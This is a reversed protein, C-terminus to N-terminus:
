FLCVFPKKTEPSLGHLLFSRCLSHMVPHKSSSRSLHKWQSTNKATVELVCCTLETSLTLYLHAFCQLWLVNWENKKRQITKIAQSSSGICDNSCAISHNVDFFGAKKFISQKITWGIFLPCFFLMCQPRQSMVEEQQQWLVALETACCM